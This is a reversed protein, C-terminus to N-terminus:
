GGSIPSVLSVVQRDALEIPTDWRVQQDGVFVLVSRQWNGQADFLLPRLREGHRRTLQDVLTSLTCPEPCDVTEAAAGVAQKLQATYEVTLQM